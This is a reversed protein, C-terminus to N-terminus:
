KIGIAWRGNGTTIAIPVGISNLVTSEGVVTIPGRTPQELALRVDQQTMTTLAGRTYGIATNPTTSKFLQMQCNPLSPNVMSLGRWRALAVQEREDFASQLAIAASKSVGAAEVWEVVARSKDPNEFYSVIQKLTANPLVVRDYQLTLAIDQLWITEGRDCKQEVMQLIQRMGIGERARFEDNISITGFGLIAAPLWLLAVAREKRIVLIAFLILEPIIAGIMYRWYGFGIKLVVSFIACTVVAIGIGAYRFRDTRFAAFGAAMSLCIFLILIFQSPIVLSFIESNPFRNGVHDLVAGLINKALRLPDIWLYPFFMITGAAAALIFRLVADWTQRSGKNQYIFLIGGVFIPILWIGMAAKTSVAAASMLGALVPRIPAVLLWRAAWACFMLAVADATAMVSLRLSLPLLTSIAAATIGTIVSQSVFRVLQYLAVATAAGALASFIRLVVIISSPDQYHSFIVHTLKELSHDTVLATSFEPAFFIFAGLQQPVAPWYLNTAPLGLWRDVISFALALEDVNYLGDSPPIFILPARVLLGAIFIIV